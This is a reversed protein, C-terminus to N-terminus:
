VVGRGSLGDFEGRDAAALFERFAARHIVLCGGERDKTDRLLVVAAPRGASAELCNGNAASASAKVWVGDPVPVAGAGIERDSM